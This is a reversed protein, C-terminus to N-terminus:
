SFEKEFESIYKIVAESFGDIHTWKGYGVGNRNSAVNIMYANKCKPDPVTDHSQEDTIVILRDFDTTETVSKIANGLRTGSHHQSRIIADVGAMGKRPPVEKVDNSFSYVELDESPIVAGLTAAADMRTMDSKASVNAFTMSASVDVLVVTKGKLKEGNELNTVLAQDLEKEYKPAHRAAAVFRFPLVKDAGKRAKIADKVLKEDVGAQNMNRLNRLLAMYGLKGEKLQDEFTAKKDKGASLNSEWTDATGLEDNAIKEFIKAQNEDKPKPHVMFMADRLKIDNMKGVYKSFQYEDFKNFTDALGKKMQASIISKINDTSTKNVVAHVALLESIEDVRNVVQKITERVKMGNKAMASVILLPVHRLNQEKRAEIAIKSCKEEGVKPVLHVIRESITTGDEYFENEWLMCAMVSRRLAQEHTIRKAKAGEHTRVTTNKQKNVSAM